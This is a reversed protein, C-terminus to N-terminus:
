ESRAKKPPVMLETATKDIDRVTAIKAGPFEALIAAIAPHASLTALEAAERERRVDGISREGRSKSLAVMWRRSTWANLKERLENGLESPAAALLHLDITGAAADFKVLSVNEELHVKLRADRRDGALAVIDAFTTLPRLTVAPLPSVPTDDEDGLGEVIQESADDAPTQALLHDFAEEDSARALNPAPSQPQEAPTTAKAAPQLITPLENILSRGAPASPAENAGRRQPVADGGLARILEDPAPLDATYAIRILVMEAAAAPDSARSTEEIGKLLMQWARALVPLSLREAM